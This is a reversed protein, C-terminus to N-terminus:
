GLVTFSKKAPSSDVHGTPDVARVEFVHRGPKLGRYRKPSKCLDFPKRDLRCLFVSGAEDAKFEFRVSRRRSSGKPNGVITTQPRIAGAPRGISGPPNVTGGAAGAASGGATTGGGGGSGGSQAEGDTTTTALESTGGAENTQTAAVITGGPIAADYIAEWEGEGDASAEGLFSGLEGVEASQKRFVRVNAGAEAGGSASEEDSTAFSPPEIGGNPGELEAGAAVLEIFPGNNFVGQNRGVENETEKVNTIEIAADGSDAIFNEDALGNGGVLNETIGFPALGRIWIGAAGAQLVENGLIENFGNEILIGNAGVAEILNGEILNGRIGETPGFTKIGTMGGFIENGAIRAGLGQQSIAVGGEMGIENGVIAAEIAASSVEESNVVVGDVPPALIETGTGDVGIMNGRVVLDAAAPGAIVGVSGGNIRNTEGVKPGGVITQAARGVRIAAAANPVPDAGIANLGIYNGAVTTAVAPVESGGDGELDVGNSGAGSILNCGGDCEPTTASSGFTVRTGIATGTVGLGDTSAVEIDDGGNAAPTVGDPEVGFYNGFVRVENGGHIDLGDQTNGAVVNGLGPGEGGILSRNSGPAVLIGTENGALAGDLAVGIWNSQLKTRPSGELVVATQAGTIALGLIEVEEANRVILAPEGSQADIGVCPGSIGAGTECTRGNILAPVTLAPLSSSLAIAAVTEGDFIEEDFDIRTFEGLSNGEEIAARLTCVGGPTTHCSEDGLADDVEDAVGNVTFEAARAVPVAVLACALAVVVIALAWGRRRGLMGDVLV